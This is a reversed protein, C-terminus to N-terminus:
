EAPKADLLALYNAVDMDLISDAVSDFGVAGTSRLNQSLIFDGRFDHTYGRFSVDANDIKYGEVYEVVGAFFDVNFVDISRPRYLAIDYVLRQIGFSSAFLHCSPEIDVFRVAGARLRPGLLGLDRPRRLVVQRVGQNAAVGLLDDLGLRTIGSNFYAVDTRRSGTAGATAEDLFLNPRVIVDYSDFRDDSVGEPPRGPGVIAV